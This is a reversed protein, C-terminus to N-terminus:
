RMIRNDRFFKPLNILFTKAMQLPDGSQAPTQFKQFRAAIRELGDADLYQNYLNYLKMNLSVAEQRIRAVAGSPTQIRQMAIDLAQEFFILAAARDGIALCVNGRDVLSQAVNIKAELAEFLFQASHFCALAREYDGVRSLWYRGVRCMLLGLGLAFSFSGATKGWNGIAQATASDVTLQGSGIRSLLHHVCATWAGLHDGAEEFLMQAQKAHEAAVRYEDNCIALYGRRLQLAALGRPAAAQQFLAEAQDYARRAGDLDLAAREFERQELFAALASGPLGNDRLYYNWAEPASLPAALWDGEAMHTNAVGAADGMQQYLERAQSLRATTEERRGVLCYLNAFVLDIYGLWPSLGMVQEVQRRIELIKQEVANFQMANLPAPTTETAAKRFLARSTPVAPLLSSILRNLVQTFPDQVQSRFWRRRAEVEQSLAIPRWFATTEIGGDADGGDPSFNYQLCHAWYNCSDAFFRYHLPMTEGIEKVCAIAGPPEGQLLHVHARSLLALALQDPDGQARAAALFNEALKRAEALNGKREEYIFSNGLAADLEPMLPTIEM